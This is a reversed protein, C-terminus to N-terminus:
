SRRPQLSKVNDATVNTDAGSSEGPALISGAVTNNTDVVAKGHGFYIVGGTIKGSQTLARAFDQVSSVKWSLALNGEASLSNYSTLSELNFADGVNHQGGGPVNLGPDAALLVYTPPPPPVQRQSAAGAQMIQAEARVMNPMPQGSSNTTQLLCPCLPAGTGNQSPNGGAMPRFSASEVDMQPAALQEISGHQYGNGAWSQTPPTGVQGTANGNQDCATGVSSIVGGNSSAILPTESPGTWLTNGGSTFAIMPNGTSTSVNGVYSGDARQLVPQVPAMQGPINLQFKSVSTGSTKALYYVTNSNPAGSTTTVVSYSALVGLNSNTILTPLTATAGYSSGGGQYNCEYGSQASSFDGLAIESSDGAAGVRLLRLFQTSASSGSCGCGCGNNGSSGNSITYAYPVYAYGDGAIMLSGIAPLTTTTTSGAGSPPLPSTCFDTCSGSQTSSSDEMAVSFTQGNSPNIGVLTDGDITYITGGM